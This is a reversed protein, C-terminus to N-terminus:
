ASIAAPRRAPRMLAAIGFGVLAIASALDGYAIIV